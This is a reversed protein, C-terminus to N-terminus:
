ASKFNLGAESSRIYYPVLTCIDDSENNEFRNMGLAAVTSARIICQDRTAFCAKEGLADLILKRYLLAGNGTFVCPGQVSDMVKGPASVQEPGQKQLIGNEYQYRAWYTEGKRADILACIPHTSVGVQAALADLSSVGVVPKGTSMALGKVCSIGIRLGTFSGPGATVAIGELDSLGIGSLGMVTDILQLLHRSHSQGSAITIEAMLLVQDVVATSCSPTATDVALIRM